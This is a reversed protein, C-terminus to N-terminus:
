AWSTPHFLLLPAPVSQLLVTGVQQDDASLDVFENLPEPKASEKENLAALKPYLEQEQEVQANIQRVKDM